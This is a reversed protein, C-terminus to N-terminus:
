DPAVDLDQARNSGSGRVAALGLLDTVLNTVDGNRVPQRTAGYRTRRRGPDRYDPNLDYLDTGRAVGVGWVVFPIRYNVLRRPDSHSGGSGGHDSTVILTLRQRLRRRSEVAAVLRGLRRDTLTIAALHEESLFGRDHGVVDPLSLHVFTLARRHELLDARARRVLVRNNERVVFKDIARPWSREFLALKPKSVFLAPDRRRSDVVTFVSAVPHGAAAQVTRPRRRDDNWTVGHGGRDARIRRGTVMSTHNPLTLTLERATRANLTSAGEAMLRHLTPAGEAGLMRVARSSLSDITVVLVKTTDETIARLRPSPEAAAPVPTGLSGLLLVATALLVARPSRLM